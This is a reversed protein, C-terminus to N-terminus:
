KIGRRFFYEDLAKSGEHTPKSPVFTTSGGGGKNSNDIVNNNTIITPSTFKEKMYDALEESMQMTDEMTKAMATGLGPALNIKQGQISIEGLEDLFPVITEKLREKSLLNLNDAFGELAKTADELLKNFESQNQRENHELILRQREEEADKEKQIFEDLKKQQGETLTDKYRRKYQEATIMDGVNPDQLQFPAKGGMERIVDLSEGPALKRNRRKPDPLGKRIIEEVDEGNEQVQGLSLVGIAVLASILAARFGSPSFRSGGASRPNVDEIPYSESRPRFRFPPKKSGEPPPLRRNPDVPGTRDGKPSPMPYPKSPRSENDSPINPRGTGRGGGGSGGGGGIIPPIRGKILSDVLTEILKKMGEFFNKFTSVLTNSLLAIAGVIGSLLVKGLGALMGGSAGGGGMDLYSMRRVIAEALKEREIARKSDTNQRALFGINSAQRETIDRLASMDDMMKQQYRSPGFVKSFLNTFFGKDPQSKGGFNTAAAGKGRGSLYSKIESIGSGLKFIERQIDKNEKTSSSRGRKFIEDSITHLIKTQERLNDNQAKLSDIIVRDTPNLKDFPLM